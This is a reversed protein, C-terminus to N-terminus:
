RTKGGEEPVNYSNREKSLGAMYALIVATEGIGLGSFFSFASKLGELEPVLHSGVVALAGVGVMISSAILPKKFDDLKEDLEVARNYNEISVAKRIRHTKGM